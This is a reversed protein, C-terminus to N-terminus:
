PLNRCLLNTLPLTSQDNVGEQDRTLEPRSNDLEAMTKLSRWVGSVDKQQLHEETKRRYSSKGERIKRRLERQVTKM